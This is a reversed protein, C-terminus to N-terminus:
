KKGILVFHPYWIKPIFYYLTEFGNAKLYADIKEPYVNYITEDNIIKDHMRNMFNGFKHNTDIDKFIIIDTTKVAENLFSASDDPTLHHLVDCAWIFSINKNEEFCKDLSSYYTINKKIPMNANDYYVDVAYTKINFQQIFWDTWFLTGAGFDLVSKINKGELTNTCITKIRDVPLVTSRGIKRLTAFLNNFAM